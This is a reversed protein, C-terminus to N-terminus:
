APSLYYANIYVLGTPNRGVHNPTVDVITNGGAKKFRTAERIAIEENDLFMDDECGTKHYRAYYLNEFTIPQHALKAEEPDEPEHMYTRIDIFFHEHPLTFGLENDNILGLVTQVKGKCEKGGM